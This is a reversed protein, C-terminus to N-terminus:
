DEDLSRNFSKNLKKATYDETGVIIQNIRDKSFKCLGNILAVKVSIPKSTNQDSLAKWAEETMEFRKEYGLVETIYLNLAKKVSEATYNKTTYSYLKNKYTLILIKTDSM